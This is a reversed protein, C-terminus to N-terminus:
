KTNIKSKIAALSEKIEKTDKRLARTNILIDILAGIVFFFIVINIFGLMEM